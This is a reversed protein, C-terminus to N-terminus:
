PKFVTRGVSITQPIRQSARIGAGMSKTFGENSWLKMVRSKLDNWQPANVKLNQHFGMGMAVAEFASILFGGSFRQRVPDYKRFSDAGLNVSIQDFTDKFAKTEERRIRKLAKALELMEDTLYIGLDGVNKLDSDSKLRLVLFRLVIELDYREDISRDTLTVCDKFSQYDALERLWELFSPNVAVLMANRVEQDTLPTGGTNLRQFMEFKTSEDSERLIIKVDLKARKILLQQAPTLAMNGNSQNWVRGEMAPLFITKTLLLPKIKEGNDDKLIGMLQFVTSLRQLGDIVDWKGDERQSVFLSPIPIGLLISEIFRSKQEDSWRFFRQFEPHVDLEGDRYLNALEGISIPYQDSHIKKRREDIENQLADATMVSM